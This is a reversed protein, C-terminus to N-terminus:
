HSYIRLVSAAKTKDAVAATVGAAGISATISNIKALRKEPNM